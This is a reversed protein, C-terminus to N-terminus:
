PTTRDGEEDETPATGLLKELPIGSANAAVECDVRVKHVAFDVLKEMPESSADQARLVWRCVKALQEDPVTQWKKRILAIAEDGVADVLAPLRKRSYADNGSKIRAFAKFGGGNQVLSDISNKAKKKAQPEPPPEKGQSENMKANCAWDAWANQERPIWRLTADQVQSLLLEAQDFSEMLNPASVDYTGTLQNIVLQSDGQILVNSLGLELVRRLGLILGEYEAENNTACSLLVADCSRDGEMELCYGGAALGPNGRSGGDFYLVASYKKKQKKEKKKENPIAADRERMKAPIAKMRVFVANPYLKKAKKKGAPVYGILKEGSADWVEWKKGDRFIKVPEDYAM